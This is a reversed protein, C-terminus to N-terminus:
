CTARSSSSGAAPPMREKGRILEVVTLDNRKWWKIQDLSKGVTASQPTVLVETLYERRSLSKPRNRRARKPCCGGAWCCSIPSGGGCVGGRCPRSTSFASGADRHTAAPLRQHHHQQAHRRADMPRGAAFRLGRLAFLALAVSQTGQLGAMIIPLLVLVVTTDNIFMSFLTSVVLIAIQLQAESRACARFLKGGLARRRRHAGHGGGLVFMATVMIVAISGFGSFGEQYTLIGRWGGPHPWPVVLALMVLLATVDTRLRQTWFLILAVGLIIGLALYDLNVAPVPM